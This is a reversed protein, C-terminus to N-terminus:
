FNPCFAYCKKIFIRCLFHSTGAPLIEYRRPPSQASVRKAEYYFLHELARKKQVLM